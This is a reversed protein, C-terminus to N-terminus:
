RALRRCAILGSHGGTPQPLLSTVPWVRRKDIERSAKPDIEREKGLSKRPCDIHFAVFPQAVYGAVIKRKKTQTINLNNRPIAHSIKM